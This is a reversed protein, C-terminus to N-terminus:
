RALGHLADLVMGVYLDVLAQREADGMDPRVMWMLPDLGGLLIGLAREAHEAPVGYEGVAFSAFYEITRRNRARLDRRGTTGAAGHRLPNFITGWRDTADLLGRVMARMKPEFGGPAGVVAVVLEEDLRKSERRDLEIILDDRNEFHKYVLTRTVGAREAV